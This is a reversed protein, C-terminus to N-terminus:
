RAALRRPLQYFLLENQSLLPIPGVLLLGVSSYEKISTSAMTARAIRISRAEKLAREVQSMRQHDM